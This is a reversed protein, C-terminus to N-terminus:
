LFGLIKREREFADLSDAGHVLNAYPPDGDRRHEGRITGVETTGVKGMISRWMPVANPRQLVLAMTLGSRMHSILSGFYPKGEHEEYFMGAGWGPKMIRGQDLAFGAMEIRALIAGVLRREFADPKILAVTYDGEV